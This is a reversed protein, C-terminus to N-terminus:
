HGPLAVATQTVLWVWSNSWVGPQGKWQQGPRSDVSELSSHLPVQAVLCLILVDQAQSLPWVESGAMSM